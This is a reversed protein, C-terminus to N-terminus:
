SCYKRTEFRQHYIHRYIIGHNHLCELALIIEAAYFRAKRESFRKEIRLHHFLEGGNLFEMVFYLKKSSQFAFKMSVIFPHKITAMIDRESKTQIINNRTKIHIKKLVKMAYVNNTKSHKVMYVKGFAGKGILKCKIFDEAGM